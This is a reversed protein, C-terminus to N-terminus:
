GRNHQEFYKILESSIVYVPSYNHRLIYNLIIADTM